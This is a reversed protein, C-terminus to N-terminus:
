PDKCFKVLQKIMVNRPCSYAFCSRTTPDLSRTGSAFGLLSGTAFNQTPSDGFVCKVNLPRKDSGSRRWDHHYLNLIPNRSNCDILHPIGHFHTRVDDNGFGWNSSGAIAAVDTSGSGM